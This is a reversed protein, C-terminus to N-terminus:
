SLRKKTDVCQYYACRIAKDLKAKKMNGYTADEPWVYLKDVNKCLKIRTIKIRKPSPKRFWIAYIKKSETDRIRIQMDNNRFYGRQAKSVWNIILAMTEEESLQVFPTLLKKWNTVGFKALIIRADQNWHKCYRLKELLSM